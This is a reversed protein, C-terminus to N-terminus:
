GIFGSKMMHAMYRMAPVFRYTFATMHRVGAKEAADLMAKSESFNMAIPKECLLHKGAKIAALAIPAHTFNPTAIIVANVEDRNLMDLYNTFAATIGTQQVAKKLVEPNTDCLAVLKAEPCLALGPLHNQLAIGGCGIMGVGIQKM